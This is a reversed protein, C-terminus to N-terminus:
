SLPFEATYYYGIIMKGKNIFVSIQLYFNHVKGIKINKKCSEKDISIRMFLSKKSIDINLPSKFEYTKMIEQGEHVDNLLLKNHIFTDFNLIKKCIPNDLDLIIVITSDFSFPITIKEIHSVIVNKIMVYYNDNLILKERFNISDVVLHHDYWDNKMCSYKNTDNLYKDHFGDYKVEELLRNINFYFDYYKWINQLNQINEFIDYKSLPYFSLKLYEVVNRNNLIKDYEISELFDVNTSIENNEINVILNDFNCKHIQSINSTNNYIKLKRNIIKFLRLITNDHILKNNSFRPTFLTHQKMISDICDSSSYINKNCYYSKLHTCDFNDIIDTPTEYNVCVLQLIRPIDKVFINIISSNEVTHAVYIEFKSKVNDIIQKITKKKNDVNKGYIFIDIDILKDINTVNNTLIDYLCGGSFIINNNEWPLIECLGYTFKKFVDNFQSQPTLIKDGINFRCEYNHNILKIVTNEDDEVNKYIIKEEYKYILYYKYIQTHKEFNIINDIDDDSIDIIKNNLKYYSIHQDLLMKLIIVMQKNKFKLIWNGITSYNNVIFDNVYPLLEHRLFDCKNKCINLNVIEFIDKNFIKSVNHEYVCVFINSIIINNINFLINLKNLKNTKNIENFENFKMCDEDSKVCEENSVTSYENLETSDENLEISDENSEINLKTDSYITNLNTYILQLTTMVNYILINKLNDSAFYDCLNLYIEYDSIKGSNIIHNLSFDCYMHGLMNYGNCISGKIEQTLMTKNSKDFKNNQIANVNNTFIIKDSNCINKDFINDRNIKQTENFIDECNIETSSILMSIFQEFIYRDVNFDIRIKIEDLKKESFGSYLLANFYESAKALKFKNACITFTDNESNIILTIDSSLNM